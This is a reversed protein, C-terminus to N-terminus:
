SWSIEIDRGNDTIKVKFGASTYRDYTTDVIYTVIKGRLYNSVYSNGLHFTVEDMIHIIASYRGTACSFKIEEEIKYNVVGLIRETEPFWNRWLSEQWENNEQRAKSGAKCSLEKCESATLM